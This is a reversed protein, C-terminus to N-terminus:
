VLGFCTYVRKLRSTESGSKQAALYKGAIKVKPLKPYTRTGNTSCKWFPGSTQITPKEVRFYETLQEKFVARSRCGARPLDDSVMHADFDVDHPSYPAYLKVVHISSTMSSTSGSLSDQSVNVCDVDDPLEVDIDSDEIGPPRGLSM